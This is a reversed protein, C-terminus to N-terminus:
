QFTIILSIISHSTKADFSTTEFVAYGKVFRFKGTGSVVSVERFKECQRSVGQIEISSGNYQLNTFVVSLAVFPNPGDLASLVLMGQARGCVKGNLGIIWFVTANPGETTDQLYLIMTKPIPDKAEAVYLLGSVGNWLSQNEKFRQDHEVLFNEVEKRRAEFDKIRAEQFNELEKTRAKLEKKLAEKKKKLTKIETELSKVEYKKTEHKSELKETKFKM